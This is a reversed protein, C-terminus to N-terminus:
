SSLTRSDLPDTLKQMKNNIQIKQNEMMRLNPSNKQFYLYNFCSKKTAPSQEDADVHCVRRRAVRVERRDGGEDAVNVNV